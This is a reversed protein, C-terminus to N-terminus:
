ENNRVDKRRIRETKTEPELNWGECVAEMQSYRWGYPFAACQSPKVPQILCKGQQDLFVCSEDEKENLSLGSRQPDLRTYRETFTEVDMKLFAAIRQVDDATLYVYGPERCCQGCCRCVFTEEPLRVKM